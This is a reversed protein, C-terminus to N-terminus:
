RARTVGVYWVRREADPHTRMGQGVRKSYDTRLIVHDAEAGKAGHITSLRIRPEDKFVTSGYRKGIARLYQRDEKLIADLVEFWPLNRPAQLGFELRVDEFRYDKLKADRARSAAGRPLWMGGPKFAEILRVVATRSVTEGKRLRHWAFIAPGWEMGKAPRGSIIYPEGAKRLRKRFLGALYHNRYLYLVTGEPPIPVTRPDPHSYLRGPTDRPRWRKPHRVQIGQAVHDAVRQVVKPSRFSRDLVRSEGPRELFAEPSAGAWEYIAQDDDGALYVRSAQGALKDLVHWQLRSLDQAEDVIVVDVPLPDLPKMLLDTFDMLLERTKWAEYERVFGHADKPRIRDPWLRLTEDLDRRTHRAYDWLRLLTDGKKQGWQVGAERTQSSFELGTLDTLPEMDQARLILDGRELDLSQYAVSHLTRFFPLDKPEKGLAQAARETAEQRAAVTFTLYAIREVPTGERIEQDLIELLATTKGTGPPGFLKRIRM